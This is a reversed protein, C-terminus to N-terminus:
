SRRSFDRDSSCIRMTAARARVTDAAVSAGVEPSTIVFNWDSLERGSEATRIRYAWGRLGDRHAMDPTCFHARCGRPDAKQWRPTRLHPAKPCSRTNRRSRKRQWYQPSRLEREFHESM